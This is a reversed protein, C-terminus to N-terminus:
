EKPAQQTSKLMKQMQQRNEVACVALQQQRLQKVQQLPDEASRELLAQELALQQNDQDTM